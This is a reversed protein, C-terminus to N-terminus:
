VSSEGHGCHDKKEGTCETKDLGYGKGAGPSCLSDGGKLVGDVLQKVISDITGKVGLVTEIGAEDHGLPAVTGLFCCYHCAPHQSFAQSFAYFPDVAKEGDSKM